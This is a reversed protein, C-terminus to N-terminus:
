VWDDVMMQRKLAQMIKIPLQYDPAAKHKDLETMNPKNKHPKTM